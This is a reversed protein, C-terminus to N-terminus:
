GYQVSVSLMPPVTVMAGSLIAIMSMVGEFVTTPYPYRNDMSTVTSLRPLKSPFMVIVAWAFVVVM